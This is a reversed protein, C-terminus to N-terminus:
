TTMTSPEKDFNITFYNTQQDIIDTLLPHFENKATNVLRLISETEFVDYNKLAVDWGSFYDLILNKSPQNKM